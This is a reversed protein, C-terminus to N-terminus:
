APPKKEISKQIFYSLHLQFSFSVKVNVGIKVVPKIKVKSRFLIFGVTDPTAPLNNIMEGKHTVVPKWCDHCQHVGNQCYDCM